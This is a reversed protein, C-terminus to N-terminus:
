SEQTFTLQGDRSPMFRGRVTQQITGNVVSLDVTFACVFGNGSRQCQKKTFSRVTFQDTGAQRVREVAEPGHTEALFDMASEVQAALRLEFAARMAGETPEDTQDVAVMGFAILPVMFLRM